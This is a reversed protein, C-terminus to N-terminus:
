PNKYLIRTKAPKKPARQSDVNCLPAPLLNAKFHSTIREYHFRFKAINELIWYATVTKKILKKYEGM